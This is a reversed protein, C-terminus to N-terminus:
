MSSQTVQSFRGVHQMLRIRFKLIEPCLKGTENGAFWTQMVTTAREAWPMHFVAGSQNSIVTEPKVELLREVLENARGPLHLDQRDGGEAEWDMTSGTFCFAVDSQAALRVAHEMAEDEDTLKFCGGLRIAGLLLVPAFEAKAMMATNEGPYNTHRIEIRHRKGATLMYDQECSSDACVPM